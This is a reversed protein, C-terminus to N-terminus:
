DDFDGAAGKEVNLTSAREHILRETWRTPDEIRTGKPGLDYSDAKLIADIGLPATDGANFVDMLLEYVFDEM